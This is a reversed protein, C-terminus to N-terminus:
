KDEKVGANCPLAQPFYQMICVPYYYDEYDTGIRLVIKGTKTERVELIDEDWLSNESMSCLVETGPFRYRCPESTVKLDNLYSRYGDDPNELCEYNVDDLYFRIGDVEEPSGYSVIYVRIRDVGSLVHKGVLDKLKM